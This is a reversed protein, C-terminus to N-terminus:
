FTLDKRREKSKGEWPMLSEKFFYTDLKVCNGPWSYSPTHLSINLARFGEGPTLFFLFGLNKAPDSIPSMQTGLLGTVWPQLPSDTTRPTARLPLFMAPAETIRPICGSKSPNGILIENKELDPNEKNVWQCVIDDICLSRNPNRVNSISAARM